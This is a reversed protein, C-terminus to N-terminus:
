RANAYKFPSEAFAMYLYTNSTANTLTDSIRLKFGNSVYDILYPTEEAANDNARVDHFAVNYTDRKNDYMPWARSAATGKIMIFAPKFGTYVFTGDTSSNGDYSGFKSYGEVEHFCYAVRAYTADWSGLSVVSATPATSNFFTANSDEAGDSNLAIGKGWSGMSSHGVTWQDIGNTAKM